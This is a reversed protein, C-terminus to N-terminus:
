NKPILVSAEEPHYSLSSVGPTDNRVSHPIGRLLRKNAGEDQLLQAIAAQVKESPNKSKPVRMAFEERVLAAINADQEPQMGIAVVPKGAYAATLITGISGHIVPLDVLKNVKHAPLWGTVLVNDPINVEPVKQRM